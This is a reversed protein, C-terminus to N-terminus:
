HVRKVNCGSVIPYKAVIKDNIIVALNGILENESIPSFLTSPVYEEIKYNETDNKLVPLYVDHSIRGTIYKNNGGYVRLRRKLDGSKCLMIYKYNEEAYNIMKEADNWRDGSNFVVSIFRGNNNKVSAVLCKGARGTFGTKVGDANNLKYLFKNINSYARNFNGITGSSISKTASIRAFVENKLAYATIKALDEATTYHNEADLGHPTVFNTNYAGIEIAKDNMLKAFNEVSGGIHEAIAIAADNGSRLMLGYLLEELTVKEDIKYGVTSGKISAAKRSITIIDKLNGKELAVIATIIKTTSAMPLTKDGNKSFLVRGSDQDIIVGAFCRISKVDKVIQKPVKHQYTRVNRPYRKSQSSKKHPVNNFGCLVCFAIIICLKKILLM